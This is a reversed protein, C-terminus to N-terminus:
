QYYIELCKKGYKKHHFYRKISDLNNEIIPVEGWNMVLIGILWARMFRAEAIAMKKITAFCRGPM